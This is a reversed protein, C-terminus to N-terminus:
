NDENKTITELPGQEDVKNNRARNSESSEMMQTEYYIYVNTSTPVEFM